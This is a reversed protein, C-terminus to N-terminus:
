IGYDLEKIISDIEEVERMNLSKQRLVNLKQRINESKEYIKMEEELTDLKKMGKTLADEVAARSISRNEAIESLSLDLFYYDYIIEQQSSSLQSKYIHYLVTYRLTKEIKEM